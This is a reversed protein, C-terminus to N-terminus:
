RDNFRDSAAMGLLADAHLEAEQPERESDFGPRYKVGTVEIRDNASNGNYLERKLM